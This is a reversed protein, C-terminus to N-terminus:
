GQSNGLSKRLDPLLYLVSNEEMFYSARHVPYGMSYFHSRIRKNNKIAYKNWEEANLPRGLRQVALLVQGLDFKEQEGHSPEATLRGDPFDEGFHMLQEYRAKTM